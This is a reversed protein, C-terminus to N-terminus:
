QRGTFFAGADAYQAAGRRAPQDARGHAMGTGARGDATGDTQAGTSQDAIAHLPLFLLLLVLRVLLLNLLVLLLDIAIILLDLLRALGLILRSRQTIAHTM